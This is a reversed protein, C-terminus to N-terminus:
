RSAPCWSGCRARTTSGVSTSSGGRNVAVALLVLGVVLGAAGAILGWELTITQGLRDLRRDPPMLGESIAFIKTFIAFVVSQYGCLIALSAFLLTHADFTVGAIQVAPM